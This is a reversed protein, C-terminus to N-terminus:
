ARKGEPACASEPEAQRSLLDAIRAGLTNMEFPKRLLMSQADLTRELHSATGGAMVVAPAALGEARMRELCELGSQGPLELDVLVLRVDPRHRRWQALLGPGDSASVVRYGWSELASILVERVLQHDEALLIVEGHGTPLPAPTASDSPPQPQPIAPLWITFTSGQGVQSSISITGGHDEVIAHVVSLGLGTGHGRPKTTFFPDFARAIVEPPMGVGTDSVQLTVGASDGAGPDSSTRERSLGTPFASLRLTGGAPMADRANIALNLIVQQLQTGDGSIWLPVDPPLDLKLDISAPLSQRLLRASEHLTTRLDLPQRRASMEGGFKLLSQSVGQAQRAAQEITQLAEEVRAQCTPEARAVAVQGLMATILNNFDHAVGCALQGVAEMKQAQYLQRQLAAREQESRIHEMLRGLRNAVASLLRREEPAFAQGGPEDRVGLYGAEVKGEPRGDVKIRCGCTRVVQEFSGSEFTRDAYSVRAVAIEPRRLSRVVLEPVGRVIEEWADGKEEVLTSIAYLCDLERVREDLQRTRRRLEDESRRIAMFYPGIRSVGIAMILSVALALVEYVPDVQHAGDAVLVRYLAVGRRVAMLIAVAAIMLWAAQRGTVRLVRIALAAALCQFVAAAVVVATVSM